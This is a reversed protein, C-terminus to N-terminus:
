KFFHVTSAFDIKTTKFLFLFAETPTKKRLEEKTTSLRGSRITSIGEFFFLKLSFALFSTHLCVIAFAIDIVPTKM